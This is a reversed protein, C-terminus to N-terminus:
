EERGNRWEKWVIKWVRMIVNVLSGVFILLSLIVAARVAVPANQLAYDYRPGYFKELAYYAILALIALVGCAAVAIRERNRDM